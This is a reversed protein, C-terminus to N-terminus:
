RNCDIDVFASCDDTNYDCNTREKERNGIKVAAAGIAMAVWFAFFVTYNYWVYDFLGMVLLGLVAVFSATVIGRTDADCPSKVYEFSKQTFLFVLFIFCLIGGIGMSIIIQLYLSHSHVAGEIGAYSYSPYLEEFAQTGYGIGSWLHDKILRLSGLWTYVRYLTSSDALDGISMFRGLVNDSILFSLFPLAAITAFIFRVTKRSHMMFFVVSCIIVAIWAGRSWTFVVCAVIMLSSLLYLAKEKATKSNFMCSLAFPFVACLYAALYNPNSFVSTARGYIDTFYSTDLWDDVAFGLIYQLVGYTAVVTGSSVIALVCRRLWKETRILNKILFYALMIVCSLIASAYSGSGGVSVAGSVFIMAGFVLVVVDLLELKFIRKGRILKIFYSISTAVVLTILYATPHGLVSLFPLIFISILIGIEPTNLILAALVISLLSLIIVTPHVFFTALGALLGLLIAIGTGKHKIDKEREFSEERYGFCDVFIASTIKGNKVANALNYKSFHLPASVICMMIGIVLHDENAGGFIPLLMKIFYVLLTYIGFSLFFRGYVKTSVYALSTVGARLKGLLFSSEFGGSVYERIRRAIGRSKTTGRFYATMYGDDFSKSAKNYATFLYGFIGNILANYIADSLKDLLFVVLSVRAVTNKEDGSKKVRRKM